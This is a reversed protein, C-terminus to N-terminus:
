TRRQEAWNTCPRPIPRAIIGFMVAAMCATGGVAMARVLVAIFMMRWLPAEIPVAIRLTMRAEAIVLLRLAITPVWVEPEPPSAVRWCRGALACAAIWPGSDSANAEVNTHASRSM